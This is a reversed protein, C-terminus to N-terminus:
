PVFLLEVGIWFLPLILLKVLLHLASAPHDELKVSRRSINRSGDTGLM